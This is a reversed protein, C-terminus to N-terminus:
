PRISTRAETCFTRQHNHPPSLCMGEAGDSSKVMNGLKSSKQVQM